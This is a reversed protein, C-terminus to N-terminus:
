AGIFDDNIMRAEQTAVCVLDTLQYGCNPSCEPGTSTHCEARDGHYGAFGDVWYLIGAEATPMFALGVVSLMVLMGLKKM